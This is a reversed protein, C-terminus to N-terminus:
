KANKADDKARKNALQIMRGYNRKEARGARLVKWASAAKEDATIARPAEPTTKKQIPLVGKLTNQTVEKPLSGKPTDGKKAKSSRPFLVMKSKYEELGSFSFSVFHSHIFYPVSKSIHHNYLQHFHTIFIMFPM